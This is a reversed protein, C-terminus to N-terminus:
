SVYSIYSWALIWLDQLREGLYSKDPYFAVVARGGYRLNLDDPLEAFEINVPFRQAKSSSTPSTMLGSSTDQSLSNNGSSGWGISSIKGEFVQGPYADFVIKVRNSPKLHALSNERVMATLWLNNTNIFTLLPQGAAAYDGVAVNMNTVVGDAPATLKTHNLNLLAQEQRNLVSQIEPNEIGRPGFEQKAKELASSAQALGAQATELETLINDMAAQSITGKEALVRNREVNKKANNLKVRAAIENAQAVSIAASDAEYSQAAQQLDFRAAKVALEFPRPDLTVLEDGAKVNSNDTISVQSIPGSVEPSIRILQGNVRAQDTMPTMRDAWLTYLWLAAVAVFIVYTFSRAQSIKKDSQETSTQTNNESM